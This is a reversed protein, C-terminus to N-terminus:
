FIGDMWDVDQFDECEEIDDLVIFRHLYTLDDGGHEHLQETSKHCAITLDTM